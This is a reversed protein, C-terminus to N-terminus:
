PYQIDTERIGRSSNRFTIRQRKGVLEGANYQKDKVNGLVSIINNRGVRWYDVEKNFTNHMPYQLPTDCMKEMIIVDGSKLGEPDPPYGGFKYEKNLSGLYRVIGLRDSLKAKEDRIIYAPIIIGSNELVNDAKVPEVLVFGNLMIVKKWKAEDDRIVSNAYVEEESFQHNELGTERTALFIQDYSVFLHIKGDQVFYKGNGSKTNHVANHFCLYHFIVTDGLKLEQETLHPLSVTKMKGYRLEQPLAVVVGESPSHAFQDYSADLKLELGSRLKVSEIDHEVRILVQNNIPCLKEIDIREM